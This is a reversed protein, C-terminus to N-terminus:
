PEDPPIIDQTPQDAAGAATARDADDEPPPLVDGGAAPQTVTGAYQGDDRSALGFWLLVAVVAVALAGVAWGIPGRGLNTMWRLREVIGPM